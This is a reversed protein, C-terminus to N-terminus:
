HGNADLKLTSLCRDSSIQPTRQGLSMAGDVAGLADDDAAGSPVVPHLSGAEPHSHGPRHGESHHVKRPM